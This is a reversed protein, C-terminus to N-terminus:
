RPTSNAIFGVRATDQPAPANILNTVMGFLMLVSTQCLSKIVLVVIAGGM